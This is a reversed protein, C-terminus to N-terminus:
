KEVRSGVEGMTLNEIEGSEKRQKIEKLINEFIGFQEETHYSFNSPHFWLHFVEKKRIAKKIGRKAKWVVGCAPIIKRLGNRGLLLMSDQINVLGSEHIIPLSTPTNPIFYDALHGIRQLAGPLSRYWKKSSGRYYRIGRKKLLHHFGEINRPFVFSERSVGKIDHVRQINLLDTEIVQQDVVNEDYMIHAYSHSGIEHGVSSRQIKGILDKTDYWLVDKADVDLPHQFFWDKKENKFIPRKYEPHATGENYKCDNELLHGVIAWTATINYKEFLAILREVIEQEKAIRIRDENSLPMDAYGWAFEHDISITVVGKEM